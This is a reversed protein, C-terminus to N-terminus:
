NSLYDDALKLLDIIPVAFQILEIKQGSQKAAFYRHHGDLIFQDSSVIIPKSPKDIIISDVKSQDFSHQTPRLNDVHAYETSFVYGHSGVFEIFSELDAIQPMQDRSLCLGPVDATQEQIFERFTKM